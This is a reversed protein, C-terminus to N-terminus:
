RKQIKAKWIEEAQEFDSETLDPLHSYLGRLAKGKKKPYLEAEIPVLKGSPKGHRTIIFEKNEQSVERLIKATKAKLERVGIKSM